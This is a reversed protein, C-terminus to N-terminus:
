KKNAVSAMLGIALTTVSGWFEATQVAAEVAEPFSAMQEVSLYGLVGLVGAVFTLGHRIYKGAGNSTVIDTIIAKIYVGIKM